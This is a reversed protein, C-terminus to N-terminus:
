EMDFRIDGNECEGSTEVIVYVTGKNLPESVVVLEDGSRISFWETKASGDDYYVAAAGNELKAACTLSGEGRNKMKFVMTGEFRYFNMYSADAGNSHVFGVAKYKSSYKGCGGLCLMLLLILVIFVLVKQKM